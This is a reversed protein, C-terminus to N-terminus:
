ESPAPPPPLEAPKKKKKKPPLQKADEARLAALDRRFNAAAVYHEEATKVDGAISGHCKPCEESGQPLPARCEPVSCVDFRFVRGVLNGAITVGLVVLGRFPLSLALVAFLGIGLGLFTGMGAHARQLRFVPRPDGPELRTMQRPGANKDSWVHGCRHCHWRKPAFLMTLPLALFALGPATNSIRPREHFCYPLECKPCRVTGDGEDDAASEEPGVAGIIAQARELDEAGVLLRIGGTAGALAPNFSGADTVIARIGESALHVRDAEASVTDFYARVTSLEGPPLAAPQANKRYM